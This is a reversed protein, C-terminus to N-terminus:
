RGCPRTPTDRESATSLWLPPVGVIARALYTRTLAVDGPTESFIGLSDTQFTNSPGAITAKRAESVANQDGYVM